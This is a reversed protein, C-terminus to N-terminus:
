YCYGTNNDVLTLTTDGNEILYIYCTDPIFYDSVDARICPFDSIYREVNITFYDNVTGNFVTETKSEDGKYWSNRILVECSDCYVDVKVVEGSKGPACSVM